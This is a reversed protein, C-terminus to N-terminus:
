GFMANALSKQLGIATEKKLEVKLPNSQGSIWITLEADMDFHGATEVNFQTIARYPVSHYEVKKGTMGQKDIFILRANTFVFMDRVLKFAQTVSESDALVPALEGQVEGADVESANGMLKDLLGM